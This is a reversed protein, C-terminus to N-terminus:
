IFAFLEGVVSAVQASKFTWWIAYELKPNKVDALDVPKQTGTYQVFNTFWNELGLGSSM